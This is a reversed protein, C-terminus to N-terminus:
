TFIQINTIVSIWSQISLNRLPKFFGCYILGYAVCYAFINKNIGLFASEIDVHYNQSLDNKCYVHKEFYLTSNKEKGWALEMTTKRNRLPAKTGFPIFIFALKNDTM